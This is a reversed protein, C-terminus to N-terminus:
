ASSPMRSKQRDRPSPSTYLLCIKALRQEDSLDILSLTQEFARAVFFSNFIFETRQHFLLDRHFGLWAVLFEDFVFKLALKAQRPDRFTENTKELVELRDTLAAAVKKWAPSDAESQEDPSVEFPDNKDLLQEISTEENSRKNSRAVNHEASDLMESLLEQPQSFQSFVEDLHRFFNADHNGSSFNLYGLIKDVLVASPNEPTVRGM